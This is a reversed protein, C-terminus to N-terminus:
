VDCYILGELELIANEKSGIKKKEKDNPFSLFIEPYCVNDLIERLNSGMASSLVRLNYRVLGLYQLYERMEMGSYKLSGM